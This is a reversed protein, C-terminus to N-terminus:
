VLSGPERSLQVVKALVLTHCLLFRHFKTGCNIVVESRHHHVIPESISHDAPSTVCGGFGHSRCKLDSEILLNLNLYMKSQENIPKWIMLVTPFTFTEDVKKM